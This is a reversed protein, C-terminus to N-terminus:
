GESNLAGERKGDLDTLITRALEKFRETEMESDVVSSLYQRSSETAVRRLAGFEHERAYENMEEPLARLMGEEVLPKAEEVVGYILGWAARGSNNWNPDDLEEILRMCVPVSKSRMTSLCFYIANDRYKSHRSFRILLEDLEPSSYEGWMSRITSEVVKPESDNLLEILAPVVKEAQDGQGLAVLARGVHMRVDTSVDGAMPVVFAVDHSTGNLGPLCQLALKRIQADESKLLPLVLPRFPDRDFKGTLSRRLTDLASRKQASSSQRSLMEQLRELSKERLAKDRRQVISASLDEPPAAATAKQERVRAEAPRKRGATANWAEDLTEREWEPPVPRDKWDDSLHRDGIRRMFFRSMFDEDPDYDYEPISEIEARLERDHRGAWLRMRPMGHVLIGGCFPEWPVHDASSQGPQRFQMLAKGDAYICLLLSKQGASTSWSGLLGQWGEGENQAQLVDDALETESGQASRLGFCVIGALGIGSLIASVHRM